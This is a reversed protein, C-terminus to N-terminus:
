DQTEFCGFGTFTILTEDVLRQVIFEYNEHHCRKM